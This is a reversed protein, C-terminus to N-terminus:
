TFGRMRVNIWFVSLRQFTTFGYIKCNCINKQPFCVKMQQKGNMRLQQAYVSHINTEKKMDSLVKLWLPIHGPEPLIERLLM